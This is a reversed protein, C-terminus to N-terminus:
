VRYKRFGIFPILLLLLHWISISGLGLFGKDKKSKRKMIEVKADEPSLIVEVSDAVLRLSFDLVESTRNSQTISILISKSLEGDSFYVVDNQLQYHVGSKASSNISEIHVVADGKSGYLRQIVVEVESAKAEAIYSESSFRFVGQEPVTEDDLIEVRSSATLKSGNNTSYLDVELYETGEFKNDDLIYLPVYKTIDGESFTLEQNLPAFDPSEDTAGEETKILSDISARSRVIGSLDGQQGLIRNVALQARSNEVGEYQQSSFHLIGENPALDEDVISATFNTEALIANGTVNSLIVNFEKNLLGLENNNVLRIEIAKHTQGDKFTLQGNSEIYDLESKATGDQTRWDVTVEGVSGGRREVALTLKGMAEVITMEKLTFFIAGEEPAADDDGIFVVISRNAFNATNGISSFELKFSEVSEIVEDNHISIKISKKSEGEAFELLGTQLTYDEGAKASIDSTHYYIVQSASTSGTRQISILVESDGESVQKDSSVTFLGQTSEPEDDTITVQQTHGKHNPINIPYRYTATDGYKYMLHPHSLQIKFSRIGDSLENNKIPVEFEKVSDGPNFTLLGSVATYDVGSVATGDLTFYFIGIPIGFLEEGDNWYDGSIRQVQVIVTESSEDVEIINLNFYIDGTNKVNSNANEDLPYADLHDYVGDGDDDLDVNDGIGDLDTDLWEDPDNPFADANDVRGDGDSDGYIVDSQISLTYEGTRGADYTTTELRYRGSTLIKIIQANTTNNADDNKDIKEWIVGNWKLLFMYNDVSSYLSATMDVANSLEFEYFQAYSGIRNVSDCGNSWLGQYQHTVSTLEIHKICATNQDNGDGDVIDSVGDWVLITYPSTRSLVTSTYEITYLGPELSYLFKNEGNRGSRDVLIAGSLDGGELLYLHPDLNDALGIIEYNGASTIEFTYSKAYFHQWGNGAGYPDYNYYSDKFESHCNPRGGLYAARRTNLPLYTACPENSTSRLYASINVEREPYQTTVEFVYKGADLERYMVPNRTTSWYNKPRTETLRELKGNVEKALYLYGNEYGTNAGILVNSPNELTFEYRKAYYVDGVQVGYPDNIGDGDNVRFQSLCTQSIYASKTEGLSIESTCNNDFVYTAISYNGIAVSRNQTVELTYTGSQLTVIVENNNSGWYSSATTALKNFFDGAAYVNLITDNDNTGSRYFRISTTEDLTFSYYNAREPSDGQYPNGDGDIWSQIECSASWTGTVVAGLLLDQQCADSGTYSNFNITFQGPAYREKTTVEITYDGATLFLSVNEVDFGGDVQIQDHDIAFPMATEGSGQLLYMYSNVDSAININIDSDELLSFTFYQVRHGEGPITNYPDVMDRSTTQCDPTWGETIAVGATIAQVCQSNGMDNFEIALQFSGNYTNNRAVEVIYTGAELRAELKDWQYSFEPEAYRDSGKILFFSADRYSTSLDIRIDTDRDLTFKYYKAHPNTNPGYPDYIERHTSYCGSEWNNSHLSGGPNSVPVVQECPGALVNGSSLLLALGFIYATIFRRM